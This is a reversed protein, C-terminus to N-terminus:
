DIRHLAHPLSVVEMDDFAVEHLKDKFLYRIYLKKPEGICPDYFGLLNSKSTNSLHLQSEEVFYQIPITVDIVYPYVTDGDNSHLETKTSEAAQRVLNGYHAEVIV